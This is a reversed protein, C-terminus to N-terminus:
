RLILTAPNIREVAALGTTKGFKMNCTFHHVAAAPVVEEFNLDQLRDRTFAVSVITEERSKGTGRNLLESVVNVVVLQVPLCAFVERAVRLAASCVFEQYITNSRSASMAKRSLKGTSTQSLAEKPLVEKPDVFLDVRANDPLLEFKMRSGFEALEAFPEYVDLVQKYGNVDKAIVGHAMEQDLKWEALNAEYKARETLFVTEDHQRALEVKRDLKKRQKNELQFIRTVFSPVYNARRHVAEDEATSARVPAPPEPELLVATWEIEATAHHHISALTHLYEEHKQVAEAASAIAQQKQQLKYQQIAARREQNRLKAATRRSDRISRAISRDLQRVAHSLFKSSSMALPTLNM